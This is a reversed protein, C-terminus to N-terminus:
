KLDNSPSYRNATTESHGDGHRIWGKEGQVWNPNSTTSDISPASIAPIGKAHQSIVDQKCCDVCDSEDSHQEPLLLYYQSLNQSGYIALILNGAM